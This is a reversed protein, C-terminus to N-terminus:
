KERRRSHGPVLHAYEDRLGLLNEDVLKLAVVSSIEAYFKITTEVHKHGLAYQIIVYQGPHRDLYLKACLHRFLHLNLCLGLERKIVRQLQEGMGRSHLHGAEGPFLWPETGGGLAPRAYDLYYKLLDATREPLQVELDQDNKVDAGEIFISVVGQRGAQSWQIQADLRLEALNEERIPFVLELEIMLAARVRQAQRVTLPGKTPLGECLIDTAFVIKAINTPDNFPRLLTKNKASMGVQKFRWHGDPDRRVKDLTALAAGLPKPKLNSGLKALAVLVNAIGLIQSTVKDGSRGLFFKFGRQIVDPVLLDDITALRSTKIGGHVAASAFQRIMFETNDRTRPSIPKIAEEAFIDTACRKTLYGDVASKLSAPFHSWAYCYAEVAKAMPVTNHPWGAVEKAAQNWKARIRRGERDPSTCRLRTKLEDDYREFHAPTIDEPEWGKDGAWRMFRSLGYRLGDKDIRRALVVWDGKLPANYSAPAVYCGTVTFAKRALSLANSWSEPRLGLQAPEFGNLARTIAPPNAPVAHLPRGLARALTRVASRYDSQTRLSIGLVGSIANVVDELNREHVAISAFDRPTPPAKEIHSM